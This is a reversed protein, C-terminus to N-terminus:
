KYIQELVIEKNTLLYVTICNTIKCITKYKSICRLEEKPNMKNDQENLLFM